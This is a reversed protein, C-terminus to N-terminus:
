GKGSEVKELDKVANIINEIGNKFYELNVCSIRIYEYLKSDFITGPLVLTSYEEALYRCFWEANVGKIHVFVFFGGVPNVCTIRKHEELLHQAYKIMECYRHSLDVFFQPKCKMCILAIQQEVTGICNIYCHQVKCIKQITDKSSVIYGVRLGPMCYYKSFSRVCIVYDDILWFDSKDITEYLLEFYAQDLIVYIKAYHCYQFLKRIEKKDPVKGTPNNPVNLVVARLRNIRKIREINIHWAESNLDIEETEIIGGCEHIISFYNPWAPIFVLVKDNCNVVSKLASYLGGTAGSCILINEESIIDQREELLYKIIQKRLELSGKMDTYELILQELKNSIGEIGLKQLSYRPEGIDLRNVIDNLSFLNLFEGISKM